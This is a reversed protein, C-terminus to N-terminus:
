ALLEGKIVTVAMGGIKVRDGALRVHLVGGRASAQFATFSTKGLRSAWYPALVTHSSGTVPDEDVGVAPAFFRSVFDFRPDSSRATVIVGRAPLTRLSGFDPRVARVAAEDAAEILIDEKSLGAGQPKIGLAGVVADLWEPPEPRVPRSPFDLEIRGGEDIRATLLGSLTQFKAERDRSLVGTEWLIHAAALTAHGCLEVEVKPTFWRLRFIEKEPWVFATESLNMEAAVSQMWPGEKPSTLLCVGAPNGKFPEETFSDVQFIPIAM